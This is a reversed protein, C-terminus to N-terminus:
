FALVRLIVALALAAVSLTSVLEATLLARRQRRERPAPIDPQDAWAEGGLPEEGPLELNAVRWATLDIIKDGEPANGPGPQRVLSTRRPGGAAGDYGAAM